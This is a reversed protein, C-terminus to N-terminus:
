MPRLNMPMPGGQKNARYVDGFSVTGNTPDYLPPYTSWMGCMWMTEDFSDLRDPGVSVFIYSRMMRCHSYQFYQNEKKGGACFVDTLPSTIYAIPTSLAGQWCCSCQMMPKPPYICYDVCYCELAASVSRMDAKCRSVKARVQAELFNPVAILALVAIIAIVILLEILTFGWRRYRM